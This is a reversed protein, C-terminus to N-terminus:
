PSDHPLASCGGRYGSASTRGASFRLPLATVHGRPSGAPGHPHRRVEAQSYPVKLKQFTGHTNVPSKKAWPARSKQASKGGLLLSWKKPVGSEPRTAGAPM